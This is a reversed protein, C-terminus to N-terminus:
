HYLMVIVLSLFYSWVNLFLGNPNAQDVMTFFKVSESSCPFNLAIMYGRDPRSFEYPKSSTVVCTNLTEHEIGNEIMTIVLSYRAVHIHM